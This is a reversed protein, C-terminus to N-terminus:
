PLRLRYVNLATIGDPTLSRVELTGRAGAFAGTGGVVRIDARTANANLTGEFRMTGGPLTVIGTVKARPPNNSLITNVGVDSGVLAGKPRGFQAVDNRLRSKEWVKDGKTPTHKPARDLLVRAYVTTSVIQITQTKSETGHAGQAPLALLLASGLVLVYRM